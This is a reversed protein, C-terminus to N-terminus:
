LYIEVFGFEMKYYDLCVCYLFLSLPKFPSFVMQRSQTDEFFFEIGTRQETDDVNNCM